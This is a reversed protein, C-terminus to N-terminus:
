NSPALQLFALGIGVIILVVVILGANNRARIQPEATRWRRSMHAVVAAVIMTAGHAIRFFPFGESTALGDWIIYIIGILVQLDIFGSFAAILARDAKENNVKHQWALLYWVLAILSIAFVIWRLGSHLKLVFDLADM